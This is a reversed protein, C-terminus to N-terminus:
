GLAPGHPRAAVADYNRVGADLWVPALKASDVREVGIAFAQTRRHEGAGDRWEITIALLPVFMARGGAQLPAIAQRALGAVARLRRTEGAELAFPPVVLRAAPGEHFAAVAAEHGAAAGLLLVRVRVDQVAETARIAVEGEVTASILNLGIRVPRFTVEPSQVRVVPLPAELPAVNAAGAEVEGEDGIVEDVRRRRILVLAVSALGVVGALWVWVPVGGTKPAPAPATPMEPTVTTIPTPVEAVVASSSSSSPTPEPAPRTTPRPTPVSTPRASPRVIPTPTALPVVTAAPTPIPTPEPVPSSVIAPPLVSPSVTNDQGSVPGALAVAIVTAGIRLNDTM